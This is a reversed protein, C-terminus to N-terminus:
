FWNCVLTFPSKPLLNINSTASIRSTFLTHSTTRVGISCSCNYLMTPFISFTDFKSSGGECQFWIIRHTTESKWPPAFNAMKLVEWAFPTPHLFIDGMAINPIKRIIDRPTKYKRKSCFCPSPYLLVFEGGIWPVCSVHHYVSKQISSAEDEEMRLDTISVKGDADWDDSWWRHQWLWKKTMTM